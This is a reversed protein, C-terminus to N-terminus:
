PNGSLTQLVDDIAEVNANITEDVNTVEESSSNQDGQSDQGINVAADSNNLIVCSSNGTASSAADAGCVM